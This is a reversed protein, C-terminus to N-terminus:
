YSILGVSVMLRNSLIKGTIARGGSHIIMATAICVPLAYYSPFLLGEYYLTTAIVITGIGWWLALDNLIRHKPQLHMVWVLAAGICFEFVRFPLLFFITNRGEQI